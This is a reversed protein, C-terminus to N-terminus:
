FAESNLDYSWCLCYLGEATAWGSTTSLDLSAFHQWGQVLPREILTVDVQEEGDTLQVDFRRSEQEAWIYLDHWPPTQGLSSALKRAALAQQLQGFVDEGSRYAPYHKRLLGRLDRQLQQEAEAPTLSRTLAARWYDRYIAMTLNALALGSNATYQETNDAFRAQFRRLLTLSLPDLTAEDLSDALLEVPRLDGTLASMQLQLLLPSDAAGLAQSYVWLALALALAVCARYDKPRMALLFKRNLPNNKLSVSKLM